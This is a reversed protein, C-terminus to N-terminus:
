LHGADCARTVITLLFLGFLLQVLTAPEPVTASAGAVPAGYNLSTTLWNSAVLAMDQGNVIGDGNNDGVLFLGTRNWQSAIQAFDQGNVIGDGNADGALPVVAVDFISVFSDGTGHTADSLFVRNGTAPDVALIGNFAQNSNAALLITGGSEVALCYVGDQWPGTGVTSGTIL